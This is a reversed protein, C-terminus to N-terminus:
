LIAAETMQIIVSKASSGEATRLIILAMVVCSGRERERQTIERDPRFKRNQGASLLSMVTDSTLDCPLTQPLPTKLSDCPFHILLSLVASSLAAMNMM